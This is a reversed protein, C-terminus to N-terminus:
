DLKVWTPQEANIDIAGGNNLLVFGNKFKRVGFDLIDLQHWSLDVEKHNNKYLKHESISYTLKIPSPTTKQKTYQELSGFELNFDHGHWIAKCENRIPLIMQDTIINKPQHKCQYIQNQTAVLIDKGQYAIDIFQNANYTTKRKKLDSLDKFYHIKNNHVIAKL